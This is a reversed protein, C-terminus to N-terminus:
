WIFIHDRDQDKTMANKPDIKSQLPGLIPISESDTYALKSTTKSKSDPISPLNKKRLEYKRSQENSDTAVEDDDGNSSINALEWPEKEKQFVAGM